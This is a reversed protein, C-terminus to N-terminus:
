PACPLVSLAKVLVKETMELKRIDLQVFQPRPQTAGLLDQPQPQDDVGACLNKRDQMQNQTCLMRGMSHDVREPPDQGRAAEREEGAIAEIEIEIGERGM